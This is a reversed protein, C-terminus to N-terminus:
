NLYPFAPTEAAALKSLLSDRSRELRVIWGAYFAAEQQCHARYEPGGGRWRAQWSWDAHQDRAHKLARQNELFDAGTPEGPDAFIETAIHTTTM